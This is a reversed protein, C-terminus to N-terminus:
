NRRELRVFEAGTERIGNIQLPGDRPAHRNFTSFANSEIFVRRPEVDDGHQITFRPPLLLM